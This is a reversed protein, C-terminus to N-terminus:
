LTVCVAFFVLDALSSHQCGLIDLVGLGTCSSKEFKNMCIHEIFINLVFFFSIRLLTNWLGLPLPEKENQELMM